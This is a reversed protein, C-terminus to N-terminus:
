EARLAVAPDVRSARRAPVWSALLAVAGLVACIGAYTLPDRTSIGYLQSSLLRAGPVAALLGVIIGIGALRLARGM